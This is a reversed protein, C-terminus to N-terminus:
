EHYMSRQRFGTARGTRARVGHRPMLGIIMPAQAVGPPRRVDAVTFETKGASDSRPSGLRRPREACYRIRTFSPPPSPLFVPPAHLFLTPLERPPQEMGWYSLTIGISVFLVFSGLAVLCTGRWSLNGPSIWKARPKIRKFHVYPHRWGLGLDDKFFSVRRQRDECEGTAVLGLLGRVGGVAGAPNLVWPISAITAAYRSEQSRNMQVVPQEIM